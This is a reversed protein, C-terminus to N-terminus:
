NSPARVALPRNSDLIYSLFGILKKLNMVRSQARSELDRAIKLEDACHSLSKSAASLLGSTSNWADRASNVANQATLLETTERGVLPAPRLWKRRQSSRNAATSEQGGRDLGELNPRHHRESRRRDTGCRQDGARTVNAGQGSARRRDLGPRFAHRVVVAASNRRRPPRDEFESVIARVGRRGANQASRPLVPRQPRNSHTCLRSRPFAEGPRRSGNARM